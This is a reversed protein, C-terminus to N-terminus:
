RAHQGAPRKRSKRRLVLSAGALVVGAITAGDALPQSLAVAPTQSTRLPLRGVLHASEQTETQEIVTGDPLILASVGNTSAQVASRSFQAARFQAMQMQQVSEDTNQFHANNTPIVIMEGGLGVGQAIIPEYAVEFCIGVALRVERGSNLTVDLIGPNDVPHMDVGVQSAVPALRLTLDRMPIYEGWPVPHQKGYLEVDLGTDPYWIGVWNYSHTQEVELFGVMQPTGTAAVSQEVLDRVTENHVPNRDISHEGWIVLDLDQHDEAMRMTERTHNQTVKGEEAFTQVMPIEVNGQVTGVDLFGSQQDTPLRILAPAFLLLAGGGAAALRPMMARLGRDASPSGSASPHSPSPASLSRRFLVAIFVVVFAVLAEGGLPALAILPSDVQSFGLKGWPFGGYPYRSRLEEFAVFLLAVAAAQGLTTRAPRWHSVAAVSAGWIGMFLAQVAAAAFWAVWTGTALEMWSTLPVFFFMMWWAAYLFARGPRVQDVIAVLMALAPFLLLWVGTGPFSLWTALGSVALVGLDVFTSASAGKGSRARVTM